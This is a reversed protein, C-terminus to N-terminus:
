WRMIAMNAGVDLSTRPSLKALIVRLATLAVPDYEGKQQIAVAIQDGRFAQISCGDRTVLTVIERKSTITPAPIM